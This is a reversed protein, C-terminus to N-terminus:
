EKFSYIFFSQYLCTLTKVCQSKREKQIIQWQNDLYIDIYFLHLVIDRICIFRKIYTEGLSKYELVQGQACQVTLLMISQACM